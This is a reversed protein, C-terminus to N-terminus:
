LVGLPDCNMCSLRLRPRFVIFNSRIGRKWNREAPYMWRFKWRSPHFPCVSPNSNWIAVRRERKEGSKNKKKCRGGSLVTPPVNQKIAQFGKENYGPCSTRSIDHAATLYCRNVTQLRVCQFIRFVNDSSTVAVRATDILIIKNFTFSVPM